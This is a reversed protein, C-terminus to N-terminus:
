RDCMADANIYGRVLMQRKYWFKVVVCGLLYKRLCKPSRRTIAEELSDLPIEFNSNLKISSTHQFLDHCKVMINIAYPNILGIILICGAPLRINRTTIRYIMSRYRNRTRGHLVTRSTGYIHELLPSVLIAHKWWSTQSYSRCDGLNREWYRVCLVTFLRGASKM